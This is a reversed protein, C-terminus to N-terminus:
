VASLGRSKNPIFSLAIIEAAFSAKSLLFGTSSSYVIELVSREAPAMSDPSSQFVGESDGKALMDFTKKDHEDIKTIDFDPKKKHIFKVTNKILSLAKFGVFDLEVLGCDAIQCMDYQTSIIGTEPDAYLPVYSDLPERGVVVGDPHLFSHSILGELRQVTDFLEKYWGEILKLAKKM